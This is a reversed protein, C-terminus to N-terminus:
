SGRGPERGKRVKKQGERERSYYDVLVALRTMLWPIWRKAGRAIPAHVHDLMIRLANHCLCLTSKSLKLTREACNGLSILSSVWLVFFSFAVPPNVWERVYMCCFRPKCGRTLLESSSRINRGHRVRFAGVLFFFFVPIGRPSRRTRNGHTVKGALWTVVVSDSRQSLTRRNKGALGNSLRALNM